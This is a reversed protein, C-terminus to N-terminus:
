ILVYEIIIVSLRDIRFFFNVTFGVVCRLQWLACWRTRFIKPFRALTNHRSTPVMFATEVSRAIRLDSRSRDIYTWSVAVSDIGETTRAIPDARGNRQFVMNWGSRARTLHDGFYEESLIDGLDQAVNEAYISFCKKIGYSVNRLYESWIQDSPSM